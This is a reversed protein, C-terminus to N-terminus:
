SCTAPIASPRSASIAFWRSSVVCLDGLGGSTSLAEYPRGNLVFNEHHQLPALSVVEGDVIAECRGTYVAIM